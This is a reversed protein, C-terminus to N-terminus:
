RRYVVGRHVIHVSHLGVAGVCAGVAVMIPDLAGPRDRSQTAVGVLLGAGAGIWGNVQMNTPETLELRVERIDKRYIELRETPAFAHVQNCVLKDDTAYFFECRLRERTRVSIMQDLDIQRVDSWDGKSKAMAPCALVPIFFLLAFYRLM